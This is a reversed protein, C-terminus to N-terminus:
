KGNEKEIREEAEIRHKTEDFTPLIVGEVNAAKRVFNYAQRVSSSRAIGEGVLALIVKTEYAM